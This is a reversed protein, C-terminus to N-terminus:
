EAWEVAMKIISIIDRNNVKGDSNIDFYKPSIYIYGYAEESPMDDIGWGALYRLLFTIDTNSYWGDGDIDGLMGIM